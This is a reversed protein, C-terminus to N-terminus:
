ADPRLHRRRFAFATLALPALAEAGTSCGCGRPPLTGGDPQGADPTGSDPRAGRVCVNGQCVFSDCSAACQTDSTCFGATTPLCLQQNLNCVQGCTCTATGCACTPERCFTLPLGAEALATPAALVVLVLVLTRM